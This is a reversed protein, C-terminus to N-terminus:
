DTQHKQELKNINEDKNLARDVLDTGLLKIFDSTLTCFLQKVRADFSATMEWDAMEKAQVRLSLHTFSMVEIQNTFRIVKRVKASGAQAETDLVRQFLQRGNLGAEQCRHPMSAADVGSSAARGARQVALPLSDM